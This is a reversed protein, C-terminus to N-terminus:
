RAYTSRYVDRGEQSLATDFFDMPGTTVTPSQFQQAKQAILESLHRVCRCAAVVTFVSAPAAGIIGLEFNPKWILFGTAIANCVFAVLFYIMGQALLCRVLSGRGVRKYEIALKYVSLLLLIADFIMTYARIITTDRYANAPDLAVCVGEPVWHGQNQVTNLIVLGAHGLVMVCIVSTVVTNTWIAITRLAFNVSAFVVSMELFFTLVHEISCDSRKTSNVMSVLCLLGIAQFYRGFFYPLVQWQFVKRQKIFDRELTMSTLVEWFYMGTWINAARILIVADRQLEQPSNWDHM